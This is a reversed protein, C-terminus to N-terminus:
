EGHNEEELKHQKDHTFLGFREAELSQLASEYAIEASIRSQWDRAFRGDDYNPGDCEIRGRRGFAERFKLPLRNWTDWFVTKDYQLLGEQKLHTQLDERADLNENVFTRFYHLMSTALMAREQLVDERLREARDFEGRLKEYEKDYREDESTWSDNDPGRDALHERLRNVTKELQSAHGRLFTERRQCEQTMQNYVADARVVAERQRLMKLSRNTSAKDQLIAPITQNGIEIGIFRSSYPGLSDPAQRPWRRIKMEAYNDLAEAILRHAVLAVQAGGRYLLTLLAQLTTQIFRQPPFYYAAGGTDM